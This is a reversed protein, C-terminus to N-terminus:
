HDHNPGRVIGNDEGFPSRVIMGNDIPEPRLIVMGQDGGAAPRPPTQTGSITVQPADMRATPRRADRAALVGLAVAALILGGTLRDM